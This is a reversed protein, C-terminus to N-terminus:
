GRPSGDLQSLITEADSTAGRNYPLKSLATGMACTNSVAAYTLGAGIAAALWKLRPAAVSGLVSSLVVSGAVLRVQRELDWRQAGRDVAFGRGEWDTIGNELVRGSSLGANRLLTQAKTSRQGSRCVLVVDSHGDLRRAVEAGLQDVVDLPVNYSGAIHSTEFEAPTRVDVVRPATPSELLTHLEPSTIVDATPASM